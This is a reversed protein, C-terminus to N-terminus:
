QYGETLEVKETVEIKRYERHEETDRQTMNNRM